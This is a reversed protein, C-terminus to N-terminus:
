PSGRLVDRWAPDCRAVVEAFGPQKSDVPRDLWQDVRPVPSVVRSIGPRTAPVLALVLIWAAALGALDVRASTRDFSATAAQPASIAFLWLAICAFLTWRAHDNAVGALFLYGPVGALLFMWRNAGRWPMLALATLAIVVLGMAVHMSAASDLANQCIAARVGRFGALAFYLAVDVAENNGVRERVRAAIEANTSHPLWRFAFYVALVAGLIVALTRVRQRAPVGRSADRWAFAALLPVGLIFSAEHIFLGAAITLAATVIRGSLWALTAAGLVAVVALDTRGGDEGWRMMLALAVVAFAGRRVVSAQFRAFLLALVCSAGLASAFHFAIAADVADSAFVRALSGGLGRHVAGFDVFDVALTAAKYQLFVERLPALEHNRWAAYFFRGSATLLLAGLLMAQAVDRRRTGPGVFRLPEDSRM